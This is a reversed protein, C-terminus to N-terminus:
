GGGRPWLIGRTAGIAAALMAILGGWFFRRDGQRDKRDAKLQRVDAELITVREPLDNFRSEIRLAADRAERSLTAAEGVKEALQFLTAEGAM